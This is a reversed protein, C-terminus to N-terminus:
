LPAAALRTALSAAGHSGVLLSIAVDLRWQPVLCLERDGVGPGEQWFSPMQLLASAGHLLPMSLLSWPGSWYGILVNVGVVYYLSRGV